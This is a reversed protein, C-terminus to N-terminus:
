ELESVYCAAQPLSGGSVTVNRGLLCLPKEVSNAKDAVQKRHGRQRCANSAWKRRDYVRKGCGCLCRRDVGTEDQHYGLEREYFEIVSRYPIVTDQYRRQFVAEFMKRPDGDSGFKGRFVAVLSDATLGRDRAMDAFEGYMVERWM